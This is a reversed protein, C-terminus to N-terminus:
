RCVKLSIGDAFLQVVFMCVDEWVLSGNQLSRIVREYTAREDVDGERQLAQEAWRLLMERFAQHRADTQFHKEVKPPLGVCHGHLGM